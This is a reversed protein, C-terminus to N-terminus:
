CARKFKLIQKKIAGECSVIANIPYKSKKKAFFQNGFGGVLIKSEYAGHNDNKLKVEVKGRLPGLIKNIRQKTENIQSYFDYNM